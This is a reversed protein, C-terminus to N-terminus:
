DRIPITRLNKVEEKVMTAQRKLGNNEHKLRLMLSSCAFFGRLAGLSMFAILVISLPLEIFSFYYDLKVMESNLIAFAAGVILFFLFIILKVLKM